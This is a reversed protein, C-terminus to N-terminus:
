ERRKSTKSEKNTEQKAIPKSKRRKESTFMTFPVDSIDFDLKPFAESKEEKPAEGGQKIAVSDM